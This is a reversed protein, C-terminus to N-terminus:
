REMWNPMTFHAWRSKQVSCSQVQNAGQPGFSIMDPVRGKPLEQAKKDWDIFLFVGDDKLIYIMILFGWVPISHQNWLFFFTYM